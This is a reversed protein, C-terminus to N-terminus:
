GRVVDGGQMQNEMGQGKRGRIEECLLVEGM